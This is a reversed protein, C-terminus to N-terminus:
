IHVRSFFLQRCPFLASQSLPTLCLFLASSLSFQSCKSILSSLFSFFLVPHRYPLSRQKALQLMCTLRRSTFSFLARSQKSHLKSLVLLIHIFVDFDQNASHSRQLRPYFSIQQLLSTEPKVSSLLFTAFLM